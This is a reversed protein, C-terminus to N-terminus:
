FRPLWPLELTFMVVIYGGIFGGVFMGATFLYDFALRARGRWNPAPGHPLRERLSAGSQRRDRTRMREGIKINLQAM